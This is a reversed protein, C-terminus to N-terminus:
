TIKEGQHIPSNSMCSENASISTVRGNPFSFASFAGGFDRVLKLRNDIHMSCLVTILETSAHLRMFYGLMKLCVHLKPLVLILYFSNITLLMSVLM